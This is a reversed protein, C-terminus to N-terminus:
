ENFCRRLKRIIRYIFSKSRLLFFRIPYFDCWLHVYFLYAQNSVEITKGDRKMQVLKGLIQSPEVREGSTCHDGVIWYSGDKNVKLIRHLVYNKKSDTRVFLVADYKKLSRPHCKEIVLLDKGERLLPMMSIGKNTYVLKGDRELVEEFTM